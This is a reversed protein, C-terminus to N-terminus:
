NSSTSFYYEDWLYLYDDLVASLLNPLRESTRHLFQKTITEYFSGRMMWWTMAWSRKGWVERELATTRLGDKRFQRAALEISVGVLWPLWNKKNKCRSLTISYILPQLIHLWEALETSGHVKNLLASPVKIDDATLVKSLLYGSINAPNPLDPLSLGTRKMRHGKQAAPQLGESFEDEGEGSEEPITERLPLPPNVLPRSNTIRLLCLRCMAKIVELIIVVRWRARESRRKGIMEWLLETYQIMSLLTAVRRYLHSRISWFKTYRNHLSQINSMSPIKACTRQLLSDHYMSLLQVSCHLSESALEANRFRGPIIYTLSRLASEISTVSIQNKTIFDDYLHLWKPPLALATIIQERPPSLHSKM